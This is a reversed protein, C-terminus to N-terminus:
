FATQQSIGIALGLGYAAAGVIFPFALFTLETM